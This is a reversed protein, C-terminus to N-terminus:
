NRPSKTSLVLIQLSKRWTQERNLIEIGDEDGTKFGSPYQLRIFLCTCCVAKMSAFGKNVDEMMM